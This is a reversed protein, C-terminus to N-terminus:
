ITAPWAWLLPLINSVRAKLSLRLALFVLTSNTLVTVPNKPLSARAPSGRVASSRRRTETRALPLVQEALSDNM